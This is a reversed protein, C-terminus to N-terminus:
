ICRTVIKDQSMLREEDVYVLLGLGVLLKTVNHVHGEVGVLKVDVLLGGALHVNSQVGEGQGLSM